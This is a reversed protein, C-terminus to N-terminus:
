EDEGMAEKWCRECYESTFEAGTNDMGCLKRFPAPLGLDSPCDGMIAEEVYGPIEERLMKLAQIVKQNSM